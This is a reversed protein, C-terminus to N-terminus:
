ASCRRRRRILRLTRPELGLRPTKSPQTQGLRKKTKDKLLISSSKVPVPEENDLKRFTRQIIMKIQFDKELVQRKSRM